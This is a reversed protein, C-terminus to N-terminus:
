RVGHNPHEALWERLERILKKASVELTEDKTRAVEVIKKKSQRTTLVLAVTRPSFSVSLATFPLPPPAYQSRSGESFTTKIPSSPSTGPVTVSGGRHGYERVLDELRARPQMLDFLDKFSEEREMHLESDDTWVDERVKLVIYLDLVRTERQISQSPFLSASSYSAASSTGSLAHPFPDSTYPPRLLANYVPLYTSRLVHMCAAPIIDTFAAYVPLIM